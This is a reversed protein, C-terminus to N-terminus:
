SVPPAHSLVSKQLVSEAFSFCGPPGTDLAQIDIAGRAPEQFVDAAYDGLGILRAVVPSATVCKAVIARVDKCCPTKMAPKKKVPSSHMPCGSTEAAPENSPALTGLACHNSLAFWAALSLIVVFMRVASSRMGGHRERLNGFQCDAASGNLLSM